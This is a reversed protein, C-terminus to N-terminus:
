QPPNDPIRVGKLGAYGGIWFESIPSPCVHVISCHPSVMLSSFSEFSANGSVLRTKQGPTRAPSVHLSSSRQRFPWKLIWIWNSWLRIYRREPASSRLPLGYDDSLLFAIGYFWVTQFSLVVGIVCTSIGAITRLPSRISPTELRTYIRTLLWPCLSDLLSLISAFAPIDVGAILLWAISRRKFWTHISSIAYLVLSSM